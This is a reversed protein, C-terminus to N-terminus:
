PTRVTLRNRESAIQELKAPNFEGLWKELYYKDKFVRDSRRLLTDLYKFLM